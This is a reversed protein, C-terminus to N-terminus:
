YDIHFNDRWKFGLYGDRVDIKIRSRGVVTQNYDVRYISLSSYVGPEFPLEYRVHYNTSNKNRTEYKDIIVASYQTSLSTDLAGNALSAGGFGIGIWGIGGIVLVWALSRHAYSRGVVRSYVWLLNVMLLPVSYSLSKQFLELNNFVPYLTFGIPMSVGGLGFLTWSWGRFFKAESFGFLTPRLEKAVSLSNVKKALASLHPLVQLFRDDELGNPVDYPKVMVTMKGETINIESDGLNYLALFMNRIESSGFMQNITQRDECTLYFKEDFDHYGTQHEHSLNGQKSFKDFGSETKVILEAGSKILTEFKLIYGSSSTNKSSLPTAKAKWDAEETKLNVSLTPSALPHDIGQSSWLEKLSNRAAQRRNKEALKKRFGLFVLLIVLLNFAIVIFILTKTDM